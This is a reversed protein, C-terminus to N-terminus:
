NAHPVALGAPAETNRLVHWAIDQRMEECFVPQGLERTAQEILPCYEAPVRTKLWSQVTQHRNGKVKLLRAAKSPGGLLAIARAAPNTPTHQADM